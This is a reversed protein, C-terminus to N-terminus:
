RVRSLARALDVKSMSSRGRIGYRRALVLLDAKTQGILDVGTSTSGFSRRAAARIRAPHPGKRRQRQWHDGVKEFTHTAVSGWM